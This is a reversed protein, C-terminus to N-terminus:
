NKKLKLEDLSTVQPFLSYKIHFKISTINCNLGGIVKSSYIFM